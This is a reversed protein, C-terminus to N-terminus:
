RALRGFKERLRRYFSAGFLQALTAIGDVFRAEIGEGVAIEDVPRGDVTLDLPERSGNHLTLLDTPSTVLARASLSHPAIFSVVM